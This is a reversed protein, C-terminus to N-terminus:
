EYRNNRKRLIRRIIGKLLEKTTTRGHNMADSLSMFKSFRDINNPNLVKFRANVALTNFGYNFEFCFGLADSTISLDCQTDDAVKEFGKTTLKFKANLDSVDLLLPKVVNFLNLIPLYSLKQLRKVYTAGLKLLNEESVINTKERERSEIEVYAKDYDTLVSENEYASGIEWESGPKMIILGLNPNESNINDYVERITNIGDNMRYNEEHSFWVFSAFPILYKPRFTTLQNRIQTYKKLAIERRAEYTEGAYNAYSFQTFLVDPNGVKSVIFEAEEKNQILCDNTNLIKLEPTRIMLTSDDQWVICNLSLNNTLNYWECNPLEIVTKFGQVKCYKLVKKELTEKYLVTIQKRYEIPIMKINPPFFHDPHEHSFWIHTITSFDEYQFKSPMLLSWSNDFVSGEIWPDCILKVDEHELIFSAHNVFTIKM